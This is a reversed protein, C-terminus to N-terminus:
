WYKPSVWKDGPWHAEALGSGSILVMCGHCPQGTVYIIGRQYDAWNGHLLANAEAHIADCRGVGEHYPSLHPLQAPSLAGRPCGGSLCGVEGSPYGNYGASVLRHDRSIIVAGHRARTCDARLAVTQALALGWEDWSPRSM